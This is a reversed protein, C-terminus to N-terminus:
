VENAEGKAFMWWLCEPKHGIKHKAAKSGCTCKSEVKWGMSYSFTLNQVQGVVQGGVKIVANKGNFTNSNSTVTGFGNTPPSVVKTSPTAEPDQLHECAGTRKCVDCWGDIVVSM